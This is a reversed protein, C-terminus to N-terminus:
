SAGTGMRIVAAIEYSALSVLCSNSIQLPGEGFMSMKCSHNQKWPHEEMLCLCELVAM